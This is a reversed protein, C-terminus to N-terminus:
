GPGGATHGNLQRRSLWLQFGAEGLDNRAQALVEDESRQDLEAVLRNIEEDEERQFQVRHSGREAMAALLWVAYGPTTDWAQDHLIGCEMLGAIQSLIVPATIERLDEDECKWLVPRIQALDLYRRFVAAQQDLYRKNRRKLVLTLIDRLRPRLDPPTLNPACVCRVAQLLDGLTFTQDPDAALFPSGIAQLCTFRWFTFPPLARGCVKAQGPFLVQLFPETM